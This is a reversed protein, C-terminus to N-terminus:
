RSDENAPLSLLGRGVAEALRPPVSNGVQREMEGKSNGCIIYAGGFSQLLLGDDVSLRRYAGETKVCFQGANPRTFFTTITPAPQGMDMLCYSYAPRYGLRRVEQRTMGERELVKRLLVGSIEEGRARFRLAEGATVPVEHTSAPPFNAPPTDGLRAVIVLRRRKQPVGYEEAKLVAWSAAYGRERLAEVWEQAHKKAAPVEEMVICEPRLESALEIFRLPMLRRDDDETKKVNAVSFGQCPPGGVVATVRGRYTDMIQQRIAPDTISGIIGEATAGHNALYSQVAARSNDVGCLPVWGARKFGETLGGCGCFLDIFAPPPAPAAM